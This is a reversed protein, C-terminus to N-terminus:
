AGVDEMLKLFDDYPMAEWSEASLAGESRSVGAGRHATAVEEAGYIDMFDDPGLWAFLIISQRNCQQIRYLQFCFFSACFEQHQLNGDASTTRLKYGAHRTCNASANINDARYVCELLM